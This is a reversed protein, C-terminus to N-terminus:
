YRTQESKDKAYAKMKSRSANVNAVIRSALHDISYQPMRDTPTAYVRCTTPCFIVLGTKATMIMDISDTKEATPPTRQFRMTGAASLMLWFIVGTPYTPQATINAPTTIEWTSKELNRQM